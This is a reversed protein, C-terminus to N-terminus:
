DQDLGPRTRTQLQDKSVPSLNKWPDQLMNPRFYSEVSADEQNRAGTGPSFGGRNRGRFRSAGAGCGPSLAGRGRPSGGQFRPPSFCPAGRGFDRGEGGYPGPSFRPSGSYRGGHTPTWGRPSARHGPSFGPSHQARGPPRHMNARDQPARTQPARTQPARTQPARTQPARTQPTLTTCQIRNLFLFSGSASVSNRRQGSSAGVSEGCCGILACASVRGTKVM